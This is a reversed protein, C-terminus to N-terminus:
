DQLGESWSWRDDWVQGSNEMKERPGVAQTPLLLHKEQETNHSAMSHYM